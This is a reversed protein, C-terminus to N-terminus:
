LQQNKLRIDPLFMNILFQDKDLIIDTSLFISKRSIKKGLGIPRIRQEQYNIAKGSM